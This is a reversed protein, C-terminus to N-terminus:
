RVPRGSGRGSAPDDLSAARDPAEEQGGMESVHPPVAIGSSLAPDPVPGGRAVSLPIVGAWIDLEGDPGDADDPPGVRMKVSAEDLGLALLTTAALEKRSPQRAYDWQGPACQETVARLGALKEQPDEVERPVGYIMASRYNISHEFVSRALVIGDVHTVNVCVTAEPSQVLSRSAVSGHIYITDGVVGYATPVVMPVGDVVVGLSCVFGTSLIADLESRALRGKERARRLRTRETVLLEPGAPREASETM